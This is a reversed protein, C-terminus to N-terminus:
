EDHHGPRAPGPEPSLAYDSSTSRGGARRVTELLRASGSDWANALVCLGEAHLRRLRARRAAVAHDAM